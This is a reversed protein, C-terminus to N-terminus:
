RRRVEFALRMGRGVVRFLDQGRRSFPNPLLALKRNTSDLVDSIYLIRYHARRESRYEHAVRVESEGLAIEMEEGVTAKVEIFMPRQGQIAFDYGLSDNGESRGLYRDSYRSKWCAAADIGFRHEIWRMAILEGAYGIADLQAETPRRGASRRQDSIGSTRREKDSVPQLSVADPLSDFDHETISALVSNEFDRQRHPASSIPTGNLTVTFRAEERRERERSAAEQRWRLDGATLSLASLDTTSPMDAPWADAARLRAVADDLPLPEFDTWGQEYALTALANGADETTWIQPIPHQHAHCWAPLLEGFDEGLKRLLGRV